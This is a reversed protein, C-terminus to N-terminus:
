VDGDRIYTEFRAALALVAVGVAHAAVLDGYRTLAGQVCRSADALAEARIEQEVSLGTDALEAATDFWGTPVPLATDLFRQTADALPTRMEPLRERPDMDLAAWLVDWNGARVAGRAQILRREAAEARDIQQDLEDLAAAELATLGPINPDPM